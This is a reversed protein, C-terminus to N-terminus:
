RSSAFQSEDHTQKGQTTRGQAPSSIKPKQSAMGLPLEQEGDANTKLFTQNFFQDKKWLTYLILLLKKQIAVYGKMKINQKDYIREFLNLFPAVKYKVM